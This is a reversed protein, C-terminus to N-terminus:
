KPRRTRRLPGRTGRWMAKVADRRYRIAAESLPKRQFRLGIYRGIDEYRPPWRGRWDDPREVRYILLMMVRDEETLRALARDLDIQRLLQDENM